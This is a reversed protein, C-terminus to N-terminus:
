LSAQKDLNPNIFSNFGGDDLVVDSTKTGQDFKLRESLDLFMNWYRDARNPDANKRWYEAVAYYVPAQQYLEPIIMCDGITYAASGAVISVGSYERVLTLTTTSEVSAIQYWLGDGKNAASESTIRLYKGVMGANWSSGSGVISKSGLTATVITGTTYDAVSLDKVATLYEFTITSGSSSPAPWFEISNPLLFFYSASNSEIGTASTIRNWDEFSTVQQPIYKFTGVKIYVNVLKYLDGPLTYATQSAVTTETSVKELFPWPLSGLMVRIGENIMLDGFSLNTTSTNDSLSGYLNRAGTYTLM